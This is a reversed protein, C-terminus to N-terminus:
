FSPGFAVYATFPAGAHPPRAAGFRFRLPTGYVAGLDTVLEAGLAGITAYEPLRATFGRPFWAAGADAFLSLSLRDLFM